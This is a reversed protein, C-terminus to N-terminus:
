KAHASQAARLIAERAQHSLGLALARGEARLRSAEAELAHWDDLASGAMWTNGAEDYGRARELAGRQADLLALLSLANSYFESSASM